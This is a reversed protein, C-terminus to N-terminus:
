KNFEEYERKYYRLYPYRDRSGRYNKLLENLFEESFEKAQSRGIWLIDM